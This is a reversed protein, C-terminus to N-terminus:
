HAEGERVATALGLDGLISYLCPVVFLVLVTSAMLGFSVSIVLGKIIQAQLSGEALLPLLGAITTSSTLLVARFRARSAEAAASPIDRGEKRALKIFEVLLISDNVVIGALSIFGLLSPLTFPFGILWHGGIVGVLSLPIAAMVVLPEVYSKFQFSLLVFVGLLGMLMGMAMSRGTEASDKAEGAHSVDVGPFREDLRPLYEGDFAQRIKTANGRTVDVDGRVTVTRRGDIRVIRGWGRAEDIHAVAPLMVQSGDPLPIRLSELDAVSDRASPANRVEVDYTEPGVQLEDVTSGQFAASVQRAVSDASLGFGYSGPLMSVVLEPKSPRLDALLNKTGDFRTLWARADETAAALRELDEGQFRLEFAKKQGPSAFIVSVVDALEGSAERWTRLFDDLSGEREEATLLDVSVTAVHAGREYADANEGYRVSWTQVLREGGGLPRSWEEDMVRMGDLVRDVVRSTAELPTGQPLLIRAVVTDGELEPMARFPVRGSVLLGLMALLSAVVAGAFLYRYALTLDVLRGVVRERVLALAGDIARRVPGAAGPDDHHLAHGLHGPLIFFAEVLSVAMVLILVIPIVRLHQGSDGSISALPGLVCITTLFSAFVGIKVESTGDIAAQVGSKGRRRHTAINEAIVIADDMLLGLALLFGILTLMNISLGLQPMFICAGLISAPLGMVVWGALRFTFFMWLSVAVLIMGQWGNTVVMGIQGRLVTSSDETVHLRVGPPVRQREDAVFTAVADKVRLSDEARTKSVVLRGARLGEHEIREWPDEFLDVVRGLEGLRVEAGGSSAHIVLDELEDPARRREVFRVLVERDRTTVTGAPLDVSQSRLVAAVDAPGLNYRALAERRLEIRLQHDGFGQVEVLSVEPLRRLRAELDECYAKLSRASTEATVHIALVRDELGLAEVIPEEADDPLTTLADVERQIDAQFRAFDGREVMVCTVTGRGERAEARVEEVYSVGALAEELPRCIGEEVELATSGPHVVRVEVEDPRLAPMSERLLDSVALWGVAVAILMLLNGATPHRVFYAIM